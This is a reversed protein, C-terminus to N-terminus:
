LKENMLNVFTSSISRRSAYDLSLWPKLQKCLSEYSRLGMLEPVIDVLSGVLQQYPSDDPVGLSAFYRKWDQCIFKIEPILATLLETYYEKTSEELLKQLPPQFLRHANPCITTLNSLDIGYLNRTTNSFIRNFFFALRELKSESGIGHYHLLDLGGLQLYDGVFICFATADFESPGGAEQFVTCIPQLGIKLDSFHDSFYNLHDLGPLIDTCAYQLADLLSFETPDPRVRGSRGTVSVISLAFLIAVIIKM